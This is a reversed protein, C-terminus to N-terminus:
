GDGPPPTWKVGADSTPGLLEVATQFLALVAAGLAAKDFSYDAVAWAGLFALVLLSITRAVLRANSTM